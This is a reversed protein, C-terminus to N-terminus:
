QKGPPSQEGSRRVGGSAPAWLGAGSGGEGLSHHAATAKPSPPRRPAGTARRSVSDSHLCTRYLTLYEAAMRETTFHARYCSSAREGLAALEHRRHAFEVIARALREVNRAPVTTGARSLAVLEPLAGVETVIAPLGAAMAELMSIPLGESASSLVFVDAARLWNGVDRREGCFQVAAGLGLETCLQRLAQGEDGDGVIWLCLDPVAARAVAVARLLTDFDKARVLRGVSVLTFGSKPATEEEGVRPPHAGNRITVVKQAVPRAGTTMNRRAADCVAVVRDCLVAATIWFKLETRLRFPVPGMGHRTSVIARTGTLRAVVAARMTATKNHCHVIDPRSLRFARFLKWTSRRASGCAHVYVPVGDRELEAALPGATTLCHVEPRHGAAAHSRCLAAVVMEAGGVELSDIVHAIVM